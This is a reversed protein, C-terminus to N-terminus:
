FLNNCVESNASSVLAGFPSSWLRRQFAVTSELLLGALGLLHKKKEKLERGSWVTMWNEQSQNEDKGDMAWLFRQYGVFEIPPRNACRLSLSLFQDLEAAIKQHFANLENESLLSDTTHSQLSSLFHNLHYVLARETRLARLEEAAVVFNSHYKLSTSIVSNRPTDNKDTSNNDKRSDSASILADIKKRLIVTMKDVSDFLALKTKLHDSMEKQDEEEKLRELANVADADSNLWWVIGCGDLISKCISLLEEKNRADTAFPFHVYVDESSNLNAIISQSGISVDYLSKSLDCLVNFLRRLATARLLEIQGSKKWFVYNIRGALLSTNNGVGGRLADSVATNLANYFHLFEEISSAPLRAWVM